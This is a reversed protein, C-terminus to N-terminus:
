RAVEIRAELRVLRQHDTEEPCPEADIAAFDVENWAVADCRWCAALPKERDDAKSIVTSWRWDHARGARVEVPRDNPWQYKRGSTVSRVTTEQGNTGLVWYTPAGDPAPAYSTVLSRAPVRGLPM